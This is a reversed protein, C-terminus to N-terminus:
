QKIIAYVIMFSYETFFLLDNKDITVQGHHIRKIYLLNCNYQLIDKVTNTNKLNM